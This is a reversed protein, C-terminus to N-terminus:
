RTPGPRSGALVWRCCSAPPRRAGRLGGRWGTLCSPTRAASRATGAARRRPSVAPPRGSRVPYHERGSRRRARRRRDPVGGQSLACPARLPESASRVRRREQWRACVSGRQAGRPCGGVPSGSPRCGPSRQSRACRRDAQRARCRHARGPTRTRRHRGDVGLCWVVFHRGARESGDVRVSASLAEIPNQAGSLAQISRSPM